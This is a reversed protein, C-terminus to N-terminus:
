SEKLRTVEQSTTDIACVFGWMQNEQNVELSLLTM